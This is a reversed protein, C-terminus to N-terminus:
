GIRWSQRERENRKINPHRSCLEAVCAEPIRTAAAIAHTTRFTFQGDETSQRLLSALSTASERQSVCSFIKAHASYKAALVLM